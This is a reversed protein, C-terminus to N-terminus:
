AAAKLSEGLIKRFYNMTKEIGQDLPIKPEWGLKEKALTIDPKRQAPDNEPLPKHVLESSSGAKEKVLEALEIMTFETPNGINVPGIFDDDSNMTRIIVEILDDVFCFSRTQIGEGFLTIPKNLLAQVIFNSVVRGDNPHM